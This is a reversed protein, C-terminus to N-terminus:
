SRRPRRRAVFVGGIFLLVAAVALLSGTHTGTFALNGHQDLYQKLQMRQPVSLAGLVVVRLQSATLVTTAAGAEAAQRHLIVVAVLPPMIDTGPGPSVLAPPQVTAPVEGAITVTPTSPPQTTPTVGSAPATTESPSTTEGAPPATTGEAVFTTSTEPETTEGTGGGPPVTTAESSPPVTAESSPPSTATTTSTEEPPNPPEIVVLCKAAVVSQGLPTWNLGPFHGGDYDFPPIIDGWHGNADTDPFIPGTHATHGQTIISNGDTTHLVYPNTLSSGVSGERSTSHCYTIKPQPAAPAVQAAAPAAVLASFLAVLVVLRSGLSGRAKRDRGTVGFWVDGSRALM